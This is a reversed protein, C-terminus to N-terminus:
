KLAWSIATCSLRSLLLFNVIPLSSILFLLSDKKGNVRVNENYLAGRLDLGGRADEVADLRADGSEGLLAGVPLHGDGEEVADVVHGGKWVAALDERVDGGLVRGANEFQVEVGTVHVSQPHSSSEPLRGVQPGEVLLEGQVRKRQNGIATSRQQQKVVGLNTWGRQLEINRRM